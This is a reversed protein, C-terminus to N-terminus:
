NSKKSKSDTSFISLVRKGESTVTARGSAIDIVLRTGNIVGEEGRTLVVNGTMTITDNQYDYEARDGRVKEDPTIYFVEGEAILKKVTGFGSGLGAESGVRRERPNFEITLLKSRLRAKDQVADVNGSYVAKREADFVQLQDARVEIPADRDGIQAHAASVIALCLGAGALIRALTPKM